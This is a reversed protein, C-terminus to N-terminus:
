TEIEETKPKKSCFSPIPLSRALSRALCERRGQSLCLGRLVVCLPGLLHLSLLLLPSYTHCDGNTRGKEDDSTWKAEWNCCVQGRRYPLLVWNRIFPLSFFHLWHIQSHSQHPNQTIVSVRDLSNPKRMRLWKIINAVTGWLDEDRKDVRRYTEKMMRKDVM